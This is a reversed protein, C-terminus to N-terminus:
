FFFLSFKISFFYLSYRSTLVFYYVRSTRFMRFISNMKTMENAVVIDVFNLFFIVYFLLVYADKKEFYNKIHQFVIEILMRSQEEDDGFLAAGGSLTWTAVAPPLRRVFGPASLGFVAAFVVPLYIAIHV